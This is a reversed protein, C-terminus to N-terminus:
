LHVWVIAKPCHAQPAYSFYGLSNNPIPLNALNANSIFLRILAIEYGPNTDDRWNRFLSPILELKRRKSRPIDVTGSVM